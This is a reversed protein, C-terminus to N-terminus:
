EEQDETGLMVLPEDRMAAALGAEYETKLRDSEQEAIKAMEEQGMGRQARALLAHVHSIYRGSEKAKSLSELASPYDGAVMQAEAMTCWSLYLEPSNTTARRAYDIAKAHDGEALALQSQCCLTKTDNANITTALALQERAADLNGSRLHMLARTRPVTITWPNLAHLRDCLHTVIQSDADNLIVILAELGHSQLPKQICLQMAIKYAMETENLNSYALSRLYLIYEANIADDRTSATLELVKAYDGQFHAIWAEGLTKFFHNKINKERWRSIGKETDYLYLHSILNFYDLNDAILGTAKTTTNAKLAEKTRSQGILAIQYLLMARHDRSSIRMATLADREMSAYDHLAFHAHARNFYTYFSRPALPIAKDLYAFAMAPQGLRIKACAASVLLNANNPDFDLAWETLRAATENKNLRFCMYSVNQVIDGPLFICYVMISTIAFLLPQPLFIPEFSLNLATLCLFALTIRLSYDLRNIQRFIFMNALPSPAKVKHGPM